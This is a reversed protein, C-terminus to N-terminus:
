SGSVLYAVKFIHDLCLASSGEDNVLSSTM